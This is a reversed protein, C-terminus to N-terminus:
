TCIGNGGGGHIELANFSGDGAFHYAEEVTIPDKHQINTLLDGLVIAVLTDAGRFFIEDEQASTILTRFQNQM